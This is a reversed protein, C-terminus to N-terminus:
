RTIMAKRTAHLAGADLHVLYLGAPLARGIEDRGDWHVTFPGASRAASALVRVRAGRVDYVAVTANAAAPLSFGIETSFGFPNPRIGGAGGRSSFSAADSGPAPIRTGATADPNAATSAAIPTGDQGPSKMAATRLGGGTDGPIDIPPGLAYIDSVLYDGTPTEYHLALPGDEPTSAAALALVDAVRYFVVLDPNSDSDVDQLDSRLADVVGHSNGIWAHAPDVQAADIALETTVPDSGDSTVVDGTTPENAAVEIWSRSLVVIAFEEVDDAFAQGLGDFGTAAVAAGSQNKPVRVSVTTTATNGDQDHATFTISYKRGTGRGSRESRLNFSDDASGFAAATWDPDTDGDGLGNIPENSTISTLDFTPAPDCIDSVLVTAHIPILKHNPPWLVDRDLTVSILPPTTDVVRVTATCQTANLDHDTATFRVVTEGKPFVLPADNTLTPSPDCIDSATAGALFAAIAPDIAPTGSHSTCEVTIGAPCGITPPTTDIVHVTAACHAANLHQDVATFTVVTAGETFVGPADNSLTPSADCLDSATAGALFAAIAPDSAPTGSHGVCEVTINGPCTISPPRTDVVRVTVQCNATNSGADTATFTVATAGMPFVAPASNSLTPAPECGDDATVAAFFGSLQANGRPLGAPQNCEVTVSAPCSITPPPDVIPGNDAAGIHLSACEAQNIQNTGLNLVPNLISGTIQPAEGPDGRHRHGKNHLFEHVVEVGLLNGPLTNVSVIGDSGVRGCGIITLGPAAAGSCFMIATVVKVLAVGNGILADMEADSSVIDGGDGTTGFTGITGGAVQFTVQCAVDQDATPTGDCKQVVTSVNTMATQATALTFPTDVHRAFSLSQLGARPATDHHVAHATLPVLMLCAALFEAVGHRVFARSGNLIKM